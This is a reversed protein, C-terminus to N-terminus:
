LLFFFKYFRFFFHILIKFFLCLSFKSFYFHFLLTMKLNKKRKENQELKKKERERIYTPTNKDNSAWSFSIAVRKSTLCPAHMAFILSNPLFM